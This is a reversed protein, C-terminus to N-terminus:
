VVFYPLCMYALVALSVLGHIFFCASSKYAKWRLLLVGVYLIYLSLLLYPVDYLLEMRGELAPLFLVSYYVALHVATGIAIMKPAKELQKSYYYCDSKNVVILYCLFLNIFIDFSFLLKVVSLLDMYYIEMFRYM